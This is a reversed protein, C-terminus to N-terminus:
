KLLELHEELKGAKKLADLWGNKVDEWKLSQKYQLLQKKITDQFQDFAVPGEPVIKVAQIIYYGMFTPILGTHDGPQKLDGLADIYAKVTSQAYPGVLYGATKVPDAKMMEDENYEAMLQDFSGGDNLKDLAEQARPKIKALEPAITQQMKESQGQTELIAAEGTVESPLKILIHRVYKYGAPCYYIPSNFSLYSEIMQPSEQIAKQQQAVNNNYNSKVEADTVSVDKTYSLKVKNVIYDDRIQKKYSDETYGLGTLTATYQAQVEKEVDLKRDVYAKAQVDKRIASKLGEIRAAVAKSLDEEESTSLKDMGSKAADAMALVNGELEKLVDTKLRTWVEPDQKVDDVSLNQQSAYFNIRTYVQQATIKIGSVVAVAPDGSSTSPAAPSPACASLLFLSIVLLLVIIRFPKNM